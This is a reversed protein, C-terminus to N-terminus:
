IFFIISNISMKKNINRSLLHSCQRKVKLCFLVKFMKKYVTKKKNNLIYNCIYKIKNSTKNQKFKMRNVSKSSTRGIKNQDKKIGLWNCNEPYSRYTPSKYWKIKEYFNLNNKISFILDNNFIYNFKFKDLNSIILNTEINNLILALCLKRLCFPEYRKLTLFINAVQQSSKIPSM